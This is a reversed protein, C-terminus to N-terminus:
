FGRIIGHERTIFLVDLVANEIDDLMPEEGDLNGSSDIFFNSLHKITEHYENVEYIDITYMDNETTDHASAHVYVNTGTGNVNMLYFSLDDIIVQNKTM